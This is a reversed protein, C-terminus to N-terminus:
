EAAVSGGADLMEFADAFFSEAGFNGSKLAVAVKDGTFCWPVGPAIEPGIRLRDTGLARIVAGSTEGGAVVVRGIGAEVADQALRSLADEVLAGARAPGLAEQAAAVANPPATAFLIKDADPDQAALWTRAAELGGQALELPDLRYGVAGADLYAGVQARTMASCSGSLVVRGPRPVPLPEFAAGEMAGEARWLGPLPQAIASGGCILRMDRCAEAIVGLDLDEVADVVVHGSLRALADRVADPGAKVTPFPVLGTPRTVQPRLLRALDADRMPTLPHDKMPSEDLLENGVFLKGMFVRRGNEPFAPCHITADVQLDSMLADAVTGINGRPTSDFTSCYKWFIRQAGKARLWRLAGRAEAVADEPPVTRIKLAIVEFVDGAARPEPVGIRLTVPVGARALMAALDTAGTFDDAIAGFFTGQM